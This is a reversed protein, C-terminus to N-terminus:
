APRIKRSRHRLMAGLLGLGGIMMAWSAPEPVSSASQVAATGSLGSVVFASPPGSDTLKFRLVNIGQVFGTNFSFASLTSYGTSDFQYTGGNLAVAIANDAAFLGSVTATAIDFGTLDFNLTFTNPNYTYAGGPEAAIWYADSVNLYVPHKYTVPSALGNVVYHLDSVGDNTYRVGSADVGTNYLGPIVAAHAPVGALALMALGALAVPEIKM